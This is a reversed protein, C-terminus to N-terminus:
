NSYMNFNTFIELQTYGTINGYDDALISLAEVLKEIQKQPLDDNILLSHFTHSITSIFVDDYLPSKDYLTMFIHYSSVGFLYSAQSKSELYDSFSDHANVLSERCIEDVYRMNNNREVLWLRMFCIVLMVLLVYSLKQITKAM